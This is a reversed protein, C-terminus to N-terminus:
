AIREDFPAPAGGPPVTGPLARLTLMEEARGSTSIDDRGQIPRYGPIEVKYQIVGFPAQVAFRGMDDTNVTTRFTGGDSWIEVKVYAAATNNDYRVQGKFNGGQSNSNMQATASLAASIMALQLLKKM